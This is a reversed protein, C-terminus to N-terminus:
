SNILSAGVLMESGIVGTAFAFTVTVTLLLVSVKSVSIRKSESAPATAATFSPPVTVSKSSTVTDSSILKGLLVM